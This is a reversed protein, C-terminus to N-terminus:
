LSSKSSSAYLEQHRQWMGELTFDLPLENPTKVGGAELQDHLLRAIQGSRCEPPFEFLGQSWGNLDATWGTDRVFSPLGLSLSELVSCPLGEFQSALLFAHAAHLYPAVNAVFGPAHLRERVGLAVARDVMNEHLPGDGLFCLRYNPDLQLLSALIEVHALPAKQPKANAVTVIIKDSASAGMAARVSAVEQSSVEPLPAVGARVTHHQARPALKKERATAKDQESVFLLHQTRAGAVRELALPVFRM